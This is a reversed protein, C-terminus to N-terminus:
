ALGLWSRSSPSSSASSGARRARTATAALEDAGEALVLAGGRGREVGRERRQELGIQAPEGVGRALLVEGLRLDHLGGAPEGVDCAGGRVGGQGHEGPGGAADAAASSSALSAPSRSTSQKSM